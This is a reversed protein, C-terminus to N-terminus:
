ISFSAHGGHWDFLLKILVGVFSQNFLSKNVLEKQIKTDYFIFSEMM